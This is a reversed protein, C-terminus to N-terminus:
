HLPSLTFYLVTVFGGKKRWQMRCLYRGAGADKVQGLISRLLKANSEVAYDLGLPANETAPILRYHGFRRPSTTSFWLNSGHDTEFAKGIWFPLPLNLVALLGATLWRPMWGTGALAFIRGRFSGRLQGPRVQPLNDFLAEAEDQRYRSLVALSPILNTPSEAGGTLQTISM